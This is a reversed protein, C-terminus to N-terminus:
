RLGDRDLVQDFLVLVGDSATKIYVAGRYSMTELM